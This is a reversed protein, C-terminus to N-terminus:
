TDTVVVAIRSADWKSLEREDITLNAVSVGPKPSAASVTTGMAITVSSVGPVSIKQKMEDIYADRGVGLALGFTVLAAAVEKKVDTSLDPPFGEGRVITVDVWVYLKTPRRYYVDFVGAVRSDTLRVFKNGVTASSSYGFMHTEHILTCFTFPDGGEIVVEFSKGPRGAADTSLTTNQYIEVYEVGPNLDESLLTAKMATLSSSGSRALTARHRAIYQADSDTENGLTVDEVNVVGVWGDIATNINTITYEDGAVSGTSESTISTEEARYVDVDSATASASVSMASTMRILLVGNGDADEYVDFLEAIQPDVSPMLARQNAALEPGTGEAALTPGYAVSNITVTSSSGSGSTPGFVLAVVDSVGITVPGEVLYTDGRGNAVRSADNQPSIETGADGFVYVQGTSGAAAKRRVGFLPELLADIELGAASYLFGASYAQAGREDTAQLFENLLDIILGDPTQSATDSDSGFAGKWAAVTDIRREEYRQLSYGGPDTAM